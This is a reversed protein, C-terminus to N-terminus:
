SNDDLIFKLFEDGLETTRKSVMGRGTITVNLNQTSVMGDVYLDNYIKDFLLNELEPYVSFLPEKPSGMGYSDSSVGNFRTPKFFFNIIKIHSITYRDLLDLFVIMKEEEIDMRVSNIVANALCKRKEENATKMATETAKILATAFLDNDGIMELKEEIKSLREEIVNKWQEQRRALANSKVVDYVTTVLPGGIPIVSAATKMTVEVIDKALDKSM